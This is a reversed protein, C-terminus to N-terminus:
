TPPSFRGVTSSAGRPAAGASGRTPSGRPDIWEPKNESQHLVGRDYRKCSASSKDRAAAEPGGSTQIVDRLTIPSRGSTSIESFTDGSRRQVGAGRFNDARLRRVSSDTCRNLECPVLKDVHRQRVLRRDLMASCGVEVDEELARGCADSRGGATLRRARRSDMDHVM